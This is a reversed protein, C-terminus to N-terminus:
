GGETATDAMRSPILVHAFVAAAARCETMLPTFPM